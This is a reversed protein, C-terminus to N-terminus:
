TCGGQATLKYKETGNNSFVGMPSKISGVGTGTIGVPMDGQYSVTYTM